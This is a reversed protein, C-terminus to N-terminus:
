STGPETDLPLAAFRDPFSEVTRPPVPNVDYVRM